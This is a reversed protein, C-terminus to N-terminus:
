VVRHLCRFVWRGDRLVILGMLDPLNGVSLLGLHWLSLPYLELWDGVLYECWQEGLWLWEQPIEQLGELLAEGM